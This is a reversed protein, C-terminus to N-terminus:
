NKEGFIEKAASKILAERLVSHFYDQGRKRLTIVQVTQTERKENNKYTTEIERLYPKLM